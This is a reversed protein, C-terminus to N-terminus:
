PIGAHQLTCVFCAKCIANGVGARIWDDGNVHGQRLIMSLSVGTRMHLDFLVMHLQLLGHSDCCGCRCELSHLNSLKFGSLRDSVPMTTDTM